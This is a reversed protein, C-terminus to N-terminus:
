YQTYCWSAVTGLLVTLLRSGAPQSNGTYGTCTALTANPNNGLAPFAAYCCRADMVECAKKCGGLSSTALATATGGVCSSSTFAECKTKGLGLADDVYKKTAADQNGAPNKVNVIEHGMMDIVGQAEIAKSTGSAKLGIGDDGSATVIAAVANEDATAITAGGTKIAGLFEVPANATLNQIYNTRINPLEGTGGAGLAFAKSQADFSLQETGSEDTVTLNKAITATSADNPKLNWLGGSLAMAEAFSYSLVVDDGGPVKLLYDGAGHPRCGTQYIRDPGASLVAIVLQAPDTDGMLRKPALGCAANHRLPGHDWACYGYPNGWPDQQAAGINAPLVGGNLPVPKGPPGAAWELPEILGDSDCDGSESAAMMLALRGSAMMQNEAITRRTVEAMSRVPGKMVNMGVTGLVGVMGITAFLAFLVNGRVLSSSRCFVIKLSFFLV